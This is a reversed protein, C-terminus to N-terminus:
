KFYCNSKYPISKNKRLIKVLQKLLLKNGHSKFIKKQLILKNLASFLEKLLVNNSSCFKSLFFPM